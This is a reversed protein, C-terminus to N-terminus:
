PSGARSRRPRRPARRGPPCGRGPAPATGSGARRAAGGASFRRPPKASTDCWRQEGPQAGDTASASPASPRIRASSPTAAAPHARPQPTGDEEEVVPAAGEEVPAPLTSAEGDGRDRRDAARIEAGGRLAQRCEEGPGVADEEAVAVPGLPQQAGLRGEEDDGPLRERRRCPRRDDAAGGCRGARRRRAGGRRAARRGGGSGRVDADAGAGAVVADDGERGGAVPVLEDEAAVGVADVSRRRGQCGSRAPANRRPRQAISRRDGSGSLGVARAAIPM